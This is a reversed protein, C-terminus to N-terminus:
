RELVPVCYLYGYPCYFAESGKGRDRRELSAIASIPLGRRLSMLAPISTSIGYIPHIPMSVNVLLPAACTNPQTMCGMELAPETQKFLRNPAALHIEAM